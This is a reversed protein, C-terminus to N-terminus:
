WAPFNLFNPAKIVVYFNSQSIYIREELTKRSLVLYKGYKRAEERQEPTDGIRDTHPDHIVLYDKWNIKLYGVILFWHGGPFCMDPGCYRENEYPPWPKKSPYVIKGDVITSHVFVNFLIPNGKDIQKKINDFSINYGEELNIGLDKTVRSVNGRSTGIVPRTYLSDWLDYPDIGTVM